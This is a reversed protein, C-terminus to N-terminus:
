TEILSRDPKAAPEGAQTRPHGLRRGIRDYLANLDRHFVEFTFREEALKRAAAGLRERLARDQLLTCLGNQFEAPAPQKLLAVTSDLVQTHTPLDTALIARGSHLYSYIKMPTNNGLTRPSVLIDAQMLYDRLRNVPRGGLLHVSGAIGLEQSRQHYYQIHKEIGGIIALQASPFARVTGAFSDLLLDIGQYVELNGIYLIIPTEPAAGIETRLSVQADGQEELDLLSIDRLIQTDRSGHQEAIAALADCVPVVALSNKVALKELRNLIPRLPKFIWWKETVQHALSSDMDYIYPIGWIAKILFAIFVSEEVAHVVAYPERRASWIMRLAGLFFVADCILKKCSIGPRVNRVFPVGVRFQVVNPIHLNSGEAYTLLDIQDSGRAALVQVALRVAIPTGRDQFFPQPALFLIRMTSSGVPVNAYQHVAAYVAAPAAFTLLFM